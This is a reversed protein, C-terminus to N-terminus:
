DRGSRSELASRSEPHDDAAPAPASKRELLQLLSRSVALGPAAEVVPLTGYERLLARENAERLRAHAAAVERAEERAVQIGWTEGHKERLEAFTPRLKRKEALRLAAAEAEAMEKRFKIERDDRAVVSAAWEVERECWKVIDAPTPLFKTTGPVGNQPDGAREAIFRPFRALTEALTTIYPRSVDNKNAYGSLMVSVVSVADSFIMRTALQVRLNKPAYSALSSQPKSQSLSVDTGM